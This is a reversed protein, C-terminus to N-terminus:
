KGVPDLVVALGDAGEKVIQLRDGGINKVGDATDEAIDARDQGVPPVAVAGFDEAIDAVRQVVDAGRQHVQPVFPDHRHPIENGAQHLVGPVIAKRRNKLLEDREEALDAVADGGDPVLPERRDDVPDDLHQSGDKGINEVTDARDKVRHEADDAANDASYNYNTHYTDDWNWTSGDENADIVTFLDFTEPQTLDATLPVNITAILKVPVIESKDGAGMENYAVAYYRHLGLTLDEGNDVWTLAAGPAVDEFTHIVEGDRVLEVKELHATLPEGNRKVVPATFHLTVELQEETQVATLDTPAAPAEVEYVDVMVNDVFLKNMDAPSIAHFGIYYTGTESVVISAELPQPEEWLVDTPEVAQLTMGAPTADSGVMVEIREDYGKNWTDFTLRYEKGAELHFAPSVLWDDADLASNYTYRAFWNDDSNYAFDWTDGDGNADLITFSEQEEETQFTNLYPYDMIIVGNALSVAGARLPANKARTNPRAAPQHATKKVATELKDNLADQAKTKEVVDRKKDATTQVTAVDKQSAVDIMKSPQNKIKRLGDHTTRAMRTTLDVPPETWDQAGVQQPLLMLLAVALLLLTKKGM